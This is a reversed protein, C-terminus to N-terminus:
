LCCRFRMTGKSVLDRLPFLSYLGDLFLSIISSFKSRHGFVVALLLMFSLILTSHLTLENMYLYFHFHHVLGFLVFCGYIEFLIGVIPLRVFIFFLGLLFSATGQLFSLLYNLSSVPCSLPPVKYNAPNTSLSLMSRWGLLIAVGALWFINGLALLGRDFFLVVGLFTFFIGLGILGIGAKKMETLEYAM